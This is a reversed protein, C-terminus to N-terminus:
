FEIDVFGRDSYKYIVAKKMFQYNLINTTEHHQVSLEWKRLSTIM